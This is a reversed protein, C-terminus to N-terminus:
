LDKSTGLARTEPRDRVWVLQFQPSRSCCSLCRRGTTLEPLWVLAGQGRCLWRKQWVSETVRIFIVSCCLPRGPVLGTRLLRRM